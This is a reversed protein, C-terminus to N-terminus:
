VSHLSIWIVEFEDTDAFYHRFSIARLRKIMKMREDLFNIQIRDPLLVTRSRGGLARAKVDSGLAASLSGGAHLRKCFEHTRHAPFSPHRIRAPGMRPFRM